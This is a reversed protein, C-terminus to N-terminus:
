EADSGVDTEADEGLTPYEYEVRDNLMRGTYLTVSTSPTLHVYMMGRRATTSSRVSKLMCVVGHVGNYVFMKELMVAKEKSLHYHGDNIHTGM